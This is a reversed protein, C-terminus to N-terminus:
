KIETVKLTKTEGTDLKVDVTGDDNMKVVSGKTNDSVLTITDGAKWAPEEGTMDPDAPAPLFAVIAEEFKAIIAEPKTELFVDPTMEVSINKLLPYAYLSRTYAEAQIAGAILQQGKETVSYIYLPDIFTTIDFIKQNVADNSFMKRSLDFTTASVFMSPVSNSKQASIEAILDAETRIKYSSPKAIISKAADYQSGQAMYTEIIRLSKTFLNDFYNNAIKTIMAYRLELDKEKADGSLNKGEGLNLHLSDEAKEMLFDWDKRANELIAVEPHIFRRSPIDAPLVAEGMTQGTPPVQRQVVGYPTRPMPKLEVRKLHLVEEDHGPGGPDSSFEEESTSPKNSQKLPIKIDCQVMFEETFPYATNVRIAQWDSFAVVAEDGFALYPAFFSDYYGEANLDGGLQIAPIHGQAHPYVAFLEYRVKKATGTQVIKYIWQKTLMWYVEGELVEKRGSKIPSMESAKAVFVEDTWDLIDESYFLFPKPEVAKASSDLGEGTPLWALAGNPDEIDRKLAIKELFMRLSQQMFMEKSIYDQVKDPCNKISYNIDNTIRFLSDFARNMSGYTIARYNALRYEYIHYEENPRQALLLEVPKRKRTHVAMSHFVDAWKKNPEPKAQAFQQIYDLVNFTEGAPLETAPTLTSKKAM